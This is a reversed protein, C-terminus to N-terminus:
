GDRVTERFVDVCSELQSKSTRPAKAHKGAKLVMCCVGVNFCFLVDPFLRDPHGARRIRSKFIVDTGSLM